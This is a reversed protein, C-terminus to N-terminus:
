STADDLLAALIARIATAYQQETWGCQETLRLYPSENAAFAFLTEALRDPDISAHPGQRALYVTKQQRALGNATRRPEDGAEMQTIGLSALPEREADVLVGFGGLRGALSHLGSRGVLAYAYVWVGDLPELNM